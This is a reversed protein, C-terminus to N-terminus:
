RFALVITNRLVHLCTITQQPEFKQTPKQTAAKWKSPNHLPTHITFAWKHHDHKLQMKYMVVRYGSLGLSMYGLKYNRCDISAWCTLESPDQAQRACRAHIAAKYQREASDQHKQAVSM